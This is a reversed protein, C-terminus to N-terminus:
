VVEDPMEGNDGVDGPDSIVSELAEDTLSLVKLSVSVLYGRDTLRETDLPVISPHGSNRFLWRNVINAEDARYQDV